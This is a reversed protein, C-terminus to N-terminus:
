KKVKVFPTNMKEKLESPMTVDIFTNVIEDLSDKYVNIEQLFLDLKKIEAKYDNIRKENDIQELILNDRQERHNSSTELIRDMDYVEDNFLEENLYYADCYINNKEDIKKIVVNTIIISLVSIIMSTLYTSLSGSVLMSNSLISIISGCSYVSGMLSLLGIILIAKSFYKYFNIKKLLNFRREKFYFRILEDLKQLIEDYDMKEENKEKNSTELKEIEKNFEDKKNIIEQIKKELNNMGDGGTIIIVYFNM